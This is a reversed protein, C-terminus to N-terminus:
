KVLKRQITDVFVDISSPVRLITGAAVRQGFPFTFDNLLCIAWWYRGDGLHEAALVDIRQADSLEVFLDDSRRLEQAMIPPFSELRRKRTKMDLVTSFNQYRSVPM